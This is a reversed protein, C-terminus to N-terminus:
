EDGAGAAAAGGAGDGRGGGWVWGCACPRAEKEGGARSHPACRRPTASNREGIAREGASERARACVAMRGRAAQAM